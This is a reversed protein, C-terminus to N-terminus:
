FSMLVGFHQKQNGVFNTYISSVPTSKEESLFHYTKTKMYKATIHVVLLLILILLFNLKTESANKKTHTYKFQQKLVTVETWGYSPLYTPERYIYLHWVFSIWDFILLKYMFYVRNYMTYFFDNVLIYTINCFNYM